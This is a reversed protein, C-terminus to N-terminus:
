AHDHQKGAGEKIWGLAKAAIEACEKPKEMVLFHGADALEVFDHHPIRDAISRFLAPSTNLASSAPEPRGGAVVTVRARLIHLRDWGDHFGRFLGSEFKPSCRLTVKGDTQSVELAGDYYGALADPHFRGFLSAKGRFYADADRMSAWEAKRRLTNTSLPNPGTTRARMEETPFIIPEFGIIRSFLGPRALETLLLGAGGMSHGIGVLHHHQNPHQTHNHSHGHGHDHGHTHGHTHRQGKGGLEGSGELVEVIDRVCMAEWNTPDAERANSRGHGSFDLSLVRASQGASAAINALSSLFPRFTGACFGSAHTLLITTSTPAKSPGIRTEAWWVPQLRSASHVHRRLLGRTRPLMTDPTPPPLTEGLQTSDHRAVSSSRVKVSTRVREQLVSRFEAFTTQRQLSLACNDRM